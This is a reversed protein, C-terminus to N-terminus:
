FRIDKRDGMKWSVQKNFWSGVQGEECINIVDRWWWSQCTSSLNSRLYKSVVVERWKGTSEVKM